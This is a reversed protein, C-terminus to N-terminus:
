LFLDNDFNILKLDWDQEVMTGPTITLHYRGGFTVKLRSDKYEVAGEMDDWPVKVYAGNCNDYSNILDELLKARTTGYQDHWHVFLFIKGSWKEMLNKLTDIADKVRYSYMVVNISDISDNQVGEPM